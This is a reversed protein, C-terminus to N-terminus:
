PARTRWSRSRPASRSGRSTATARPGPVAARHARRRARRDRAAPARCRRADLRHQCRGPDARRLGRPRRAAHRPGAARRAQDQARPLRRGPGGARRRGGARRHRDHLRDAPDGAPLRILEHVPIGLVKGVFDHLAIDVACKAAGNWRIARDMRAMEEVLGTSTCAPEGIAALLTPMVAVMSEPTEGYFRDPYGEGLGVIGPYREDRLEIVVTTVGEGTHHDTRAIRFPDRLSLHLVEHSVTLGM